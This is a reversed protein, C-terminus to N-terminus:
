RSSVPNLAKAFGNMAGYSKSSFGLCGLLGQRYPLFTKKRMEEAQARNTTYHLEHPSPPVRRKGIGNAVNGNVPKKKGEKTQKVKKTEATNAYDTASNEPTKHASIKELKKDKVPSFSIGSWFKHGNNRGESKSRYLFEKLFVWRKSSRGVSSSRSSSGSPCPTTENSTEEEDLQKIIEEIENKENIKEKVVELEEEEEYDEHWEYSTTRLPSMSRTRRRLSRNRLKMDRGRCGKEEEDENEDIDLLPALIQPRKLHTSLKMPRIQGNLFLEDASSMSGDAAAGDTILRASFDFDESPSSISTSAVNKKVCTTSLVFHMPSAPASYYFGSNPQGRGPSSPASVYPTSCSSDIDDSFMGSEVASGTETGIDPEPVASSTTATAASSTHNELPKM